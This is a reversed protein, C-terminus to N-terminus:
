RNFLYAIVFVTTTLPIPKLSPIGMTSIMIAAVMDLASAILLANGLKSDWFHGRERAVFISFIAFFVLMEFSFTNLAQDDELLDFHRSGM